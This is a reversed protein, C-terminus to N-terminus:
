HAVVSSLPADKQEFHSSFNNFNLNLGPSTLSISLTHAYPYTLHLFPAFYDGPWCMHLFIGCLKFCTVIFKFNLAIKACQGDLYGIASKNEESIHTYNLFTRKFNQSCDTGHIGKSLTLKRKRATCYWPPSFAMGEVHLEIMKEDEHSALQSNLM